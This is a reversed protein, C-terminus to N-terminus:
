YQYKGSSQILFVISAFLLICCYACPLFTSHCPYSEVFIVIGIAHLDHPL